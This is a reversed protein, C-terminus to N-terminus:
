PYVTSNWGNAQKYWSHCGGSEWVTKKLQAQIDRAWEIEVERKIDVQSVDGDLIPKIFNLSYNAMNESALIVSSHGTATNPGFILFMNPFGDMATGLYAQAGGRDEWVEHLLRGGKGQVKLPHLWEGVEFGNALIIVDAPHQVQHTPASSDTKRADPYSRGPGLTVGGPQISTLLLTTLEIKPDNLAAYWTSDFIRRKCGIGYDPTLIEHYKEPM